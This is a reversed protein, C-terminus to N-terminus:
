NRPSYISGVLNRSNKLWYQIYRVRNYELSFLDIMPGNRSKVIIHNLVDYEFMSGCINSITGMEILVYNLMDIRNFIVITQILEQNYGVLKYICVFKHMGAVQAAAYYIGMFDAANRRRGQVMKILQDYDPAMLIATWDSIGRIQCGFRLLTYFVIRGPTHPTICDSFCIEDALNPSNLLYTVTSIDDYHCATKFQLYM